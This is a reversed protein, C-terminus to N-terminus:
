ELFNKSSNVYFLFSVWRFIEILIAVYSREWSIWMQPDLSLCPSALVLCNQSQWGTNSRALAWVFGCVKIRIVFMCIEHSMLVVPSDRSPFSYNGFPVYTRMHCPRLLKRLNALTEIANKDWRNQFISKM